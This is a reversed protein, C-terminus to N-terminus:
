QLGLHAGGDVPISAGNIFKAQDSCLFAAIEGFDRATGVSRTPLGAEIGDLDAGYLGLLRDTGHLGPQITNVTLGDKAVELATTKLFATLGARATNSLILTPIPQRVSISTIALVRGWGREQMPPIATKCMALMSLLNLDLAAQYAEIETSEFTGPPPGGNNTVLIDIGGLADNAAEVLGLAGEVSSLDAVIPVGGGIDSVADDLRDQTRGSVVIECGAAHLSRATERGLGASSAAILARKGDIGLDM